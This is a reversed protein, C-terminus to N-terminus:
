ADFEFAHMCTAIMRKLWQVAFTCILRRPHVTKGTSNNKTDVFIRM